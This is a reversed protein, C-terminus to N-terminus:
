VLMLEYFYLYLHATKDFYIGNCIYLSARNETGFAFTSVNSNVTTSSRGRISVASAVMKAETEKEVRM